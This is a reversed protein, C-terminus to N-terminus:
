RIGTKPAVYGVKDKKPVPTPQPQGNKVYVLGYVSFKGAEFTYTKTKNDYVGKIMESIKGDHISYIFLEGNEAKKMLETNEGLYLSISAKGNTESVLEPNDGKVKKFINIEFAMQLEASADAFAVGRELEDKKALSAESTEVWVAAGKAIENPTLEVLSALEDNNLSASMLNGSADTKNSVENTTINKDNVENKPTPNGEWIAKLTSNKYISVKEGVFLLKSDGNLNWGIFHFGDPATFGCEPLSYSGGAKTSATNGDGYDFVVDFMEIQSKFIQDAFAKGWSNGLYENYGYANIVYETDEGFITMDTDVMAQKNSDWYESLDFEIHNNDIKTCNGFFLNYNISKDSNLVRLVRCNDIYDSDESNIIMKKSDTLLNATIEPRNKLAKEFKINKAESDTYGTSKFVVKYTIESSIQGRYIDEIQSKVSFKAHTDDVKVLPRFEKGIEDANHVGFFYYAYNTDGYNGVQYKGSIVDENEMAFERVAVLGNIWENDESHIILDGDANFSYDFAPCASTAQHQLTIEDDNEFVKRNYKNAEIKIVYTGNTIRLESIDVTLKKNGDSYEYNGSSTQLYCTKNSGIGINIIEKMYDTNKSSIQLKGDNTEVVTLDDPVTELEKGSEWLDIRCNGMSKPAYGPAYLMVNNYYGKYIKSTVVDAPIFAKGDKLEVDSGETGDGFISVFVEYEGNKDYQGFDIHGNTLCLAVIYDNDESTIIINKNDDVSISLDTPVTKEDAMVNVTGVTILMLVTLLVSLLKKM